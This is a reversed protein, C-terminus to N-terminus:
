MGRRQRREFAALALLGAASLLATMYWLLSADGTKPVNALPVEVDPIDVEEPLEALPVEVDPIEVEEPLEALPVEVDPIEVEEPTEVLPVDVDPVEVLPVDPDPVDVVPPTVPGGGGGGTGGGGPNGGGPNGGGPNGGGPNGGGSPLMALTQYETFGCDACDRHQSGEETVTAPRDVVWANFHHADTPKVQCVSCERVHETVSGNVPYWNNWDHDAYETHKEVAGNCNECVRKHQEGDSMWDGFVPDLTVVGREEKYDCDKCAHVQRGEVACTPKQDEVDYWPGFDHDVTNSHSQCKDCVQYHGKAGDSKWDGWVHGTAPLVEIERYGCDDCDYIVYGDEICTPAKDTKVPKHCGLSDVQDCQKKQEFGCVSCYRILTGPTTRTGPTSVEWKGWKHGEHTVENCRTCQIEHQEDTDQKVAGNFDHGLPEIPKKDVVANCSNCIYIELGETTCTAETSSIEDLHNGAGHKCDNELKPIEKTETHKSDRKCTYTMIGPADKTPAKTVEGKDWDHGLPKNSPNNLVAGCVTCKEELNGKGECTPAKGTTKPNHDEHETEGCRSCERTHDGDAKEWSSWQHGLEPLSYNHFVTKCYSCWDRAAGKETCTPEKTVQYESKHNGHEDIQVCKTDETASYSPKTQEDKVPPKESMISDAPAEDKDDKSDSNPEVPAIPEESKDEEPEVPASPEENKNEEPEAPANPEENKDKEPEVPASPEESKDDETDAPSSPTEPEPTKEPEPEPATDPTHDETVTVDSTDPTSETAFATTCAMGVCMSLALTLALLRRHLKGNRKKM